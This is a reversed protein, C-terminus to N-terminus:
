ALTGARLVRSKWSAFYEVDSGTDSARKIRTQSFGIFAALGASAGNTKGLACRIFACKQRRTQHANPFIYVRLM